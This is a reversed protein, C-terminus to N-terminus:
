SRIWKAEVHQPIIGTVMMVVSCSKSELHASSGCNTRPRRVGASLYKPGYSCVRHFNSQLPTWVTGGIQEHVAMVSTLM